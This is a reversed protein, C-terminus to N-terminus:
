QMCVKIYSDHETTNLCKLIESAAHTILIIQFVWKINIYILIDNGIEIEQLFIFYGKNRICKPFRNSSLNRSPTPSPLHSLYVSLPPYPHLDGNFANAKYYFPLKQYSSMDECHWKSIDFYIVRRSLQKWLFALLICIDLSFLGWWSDTQYNCISRTFILPLFRSSNFSHENAPPLPFCSFYHYHVSRM